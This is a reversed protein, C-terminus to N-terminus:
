YRYEFFLFSAMLPVFGMFIIGLVIEENIGFPLLMLAGILSSVGTIYLVLGIKEKRSM